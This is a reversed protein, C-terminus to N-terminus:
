YDEWLGKFFFFVCLFCSFVLGFCVVFFGFVLGSAARCLHIPYKRHM